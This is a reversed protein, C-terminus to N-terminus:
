ISLEHFEPLFHIIKSHFYITRRVMKTLTENSSAIEVLFINILTNRQMVEKLSGSNKILVKQLFILIQMQLMIKFM